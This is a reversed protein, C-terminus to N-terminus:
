ESRYLIHYNQTGTAEVSLASFYVGPPGIYWSGTKITTNVDIVVVDNAAAYTAGNSVRVRGNDTGNTMYVGYLRGPSPVIADSSATGRTLTLAGSYADNISFGM